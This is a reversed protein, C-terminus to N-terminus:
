ECNVIPNRHRTTQGIRPANPQLVSRRKRISDCWAQGWHERGGWTGQRTGQDIDSGQACAFPTVRGAGSPVTPGRAGRIEQIISRRLRPEPPVARWNRGVRAGGNTMHPSREQRDLLGRAYARKKGRAVLRNDLRDGTLGDALGLQRQAPQRTRVQRTPGRCGQSLWDAGAGDPADEVGVRDLGPPVLVPDKGAVWLEGVFGPADQVQVGAQPVTLRQAAPVVDDARVLLRADLGADPTVRSQRSTRATWHANLVFIPPTPSQLVESGPIDAASSNKTSAFRLGTDGREAAQDILHHSTLGVTRGIPNEPDHIVTGRVATLRRNPPQTLSVTLSEQDMRRNMRTPQILHLDVERDNLSFDQGRIVEGTEFLNLLSKPKVLLQAVLLGTREFPFEVANRQLREQLLQLGLALKHRRYRDVLQEFSKRLTSPLGVTLQLISWKAGLELAGFALLLAMPLNSLTVLFDGPFPAVAWLGLLEAAGPNFWHTGDPAYLSGAQLWYDILPIHYMLSDFDFTFGRLGASVVHETWLAFMAAWAWLAWSPVSIPIAARQQISQGDPLLLSAALFVLAVGTVGILLSAGSLWKVSSLLVAVALVWSWGLIITHVVVFSGGCPDLRRATRAAALIVISTAAVWILAVVFVM